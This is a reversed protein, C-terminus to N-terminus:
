DWKKIGVVVLNRPSQKYDFVAEVWADKVEDQEKLWLWRDVVITSEVVSASFAMLSWIVSLEKKKEKYQEEYRVIDEDTLSHLREIVESGRVPDEALKSIAGRVYARFSTYCAKRLSGITLAPGAGTWGRPSRGTSEFDTDLPSGVVGRDLFIRQLLARYFHRTFFSECDTATWNQPAQCAMMRATINLRIGEGHQHKHKALRESMPFGHPDCAASTESLRLNSSRLSPIKYTPPGLRETVLNYCCGVMAVAKVSRNLTLSRLGHHLLNGCSHLSIVMLRPGSTAGNTQSLFGPEVRDLVDSLDGNKIRTEMYQIIGNEGHAKPTLTSFQDLPRASCPGDESYMNGNLSQAIDIVRSDKRFQKKNRMIKEKEALKATIDMIKAGTINHQKSELAIIHQNHPPSALARGLYNQGSGFDVVHTINHSSSGDIDSVLSGIYKVFNEVEHIKKPKMGVAVHRPLPGSESEANTCARQKYIKFDQNLAHKRIMQIYELLTSPPCPAGRWTADVRRQGSSPIDSLVRLSDIVKLDERMLLDLISTVDHLQFWHVWERPLVASYLDPEKTLFDLIHVGGCLKQFRESTTIFSLLSKVYDEPDAFRSSLPLPHSVQM